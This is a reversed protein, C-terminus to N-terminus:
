KVGEAILAMRTGATVGYIESLIREGTEALDVGTVRLYRVGNMELETMAGGMSGVIGRVREQDEINRQALLVWDLGAIGNERSYQLNAFNGDSRATGPVLLVVFAGDREANRVKRVLLPLDATTASSQGNRVFFWLLSVAVLAVILITIKQM